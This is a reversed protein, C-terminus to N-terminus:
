EEHLIIGQVQERDIFGFRRSDRTVAPNLCLIYLKGEPVEGAARGPFSRSHVVVEEGNIAIRGEPASVRDGAVGRVVGFYATKDIAFLVWESRAIEEDPGTVRIQLTDGAQFRPFMSRDGIPFKEPRTRLFFGAMLAVVVFIALRLPRLLKRPNM